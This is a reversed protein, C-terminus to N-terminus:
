IRRSKEGKEKQLLREEAMKGGGKEDRLAFGTM